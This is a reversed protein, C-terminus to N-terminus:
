VDRKHLKVKLGGLPTFLTTPDRKFDKPLNDCNEVDYFRAMYVIIMKMMFKAFNSGLCARPGMGFPGYTGTRIKSKNEANWREPDFETPNEWFEPDMHLSALPIMVSVGEPLTIDTGPIKWAKTVRRSTAPLAAIRLGENVVGDLYNMGIIDSHSIEIDGDVKNEFVFQKKM